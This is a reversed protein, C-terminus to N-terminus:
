VNLSSVVKMKTIKSKFRLQLNIIRVHFISQIKYNFSNLCYTNMM